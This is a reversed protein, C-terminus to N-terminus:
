RAPVSLKKPPQTLLRRLESPAFRSHGIVPEGRLLRFTVIFDNVVTQSGTHGM